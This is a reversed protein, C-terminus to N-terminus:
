PAIEVGASALADLVQEYHLWEGNVHPQLIEEGEDQFDPDAPNYRQPLKVADRLGAADQQREDLLVNQGAIYTRQSDALARLEDSEKELQAYARDNIAKKNALVDREAKAAALENNNAYFTERWRAFQETMEALKALATDREKECQEVFANRSKIIKLYTDTEARAAALEAQLKEIDKAYGKWMCTASDRDLLAVALRRQLDAEGPQAEKEQMPQAGSALAWKRWENIDLNYPDHQAEKEAADLLARIHASQVVLSTPHREIERRLESCISALPQTM